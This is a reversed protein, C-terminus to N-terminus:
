EAPIAVRAFRDALVDRYAALEESSDRSRRHRLHLGSLAAGGGLVSSSRAQIACALAVVEGPVM